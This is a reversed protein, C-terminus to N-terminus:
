PHQHASVNQIAERAANQEAEKKSSGQARALIEGKALVEVEFIRAHDPGEVSKLVYSPTIKFRAQMVEQLQTKHDYLTVLSKECTFFERFLNRIVPYIGHYGGDLYIAAVIAEFTCALISPKDAGGTLQEGKGLRLTDGLSLSRAVDALTKENVMAARMKSLQGEAAHPFAELLLDSVVLDLVADGLFELRENDRKSAPRDQFQEHGYSTHTLSQLLLSRDGFTYGLRQQLREVPTATM